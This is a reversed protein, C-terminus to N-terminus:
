RDARRVSSARAPRTEIQEGQDPRPAKRKAASVWAEPVRYYADGPDLAVWLSGADRRLLTGHFVERAPTVIVVWNGPDLAERAQEQQKTRVRHVLAVFGVLAVVISVILIWMGVGHM